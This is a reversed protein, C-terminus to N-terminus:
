LQRKSSSRLSGKHCEQPYLLRNLKKKHQKLGRIPFSQCPRNNRKEELPHLSWRFARRRTANNPESAFLVEGRAERPDNEFPNARSVEYNCRQQGSGMLAVLHCTLAGREYWSKGSSESSWVERHNTSECRYFRNHAVYMARIGLKRNGIPM